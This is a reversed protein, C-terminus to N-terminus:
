VTKKAIQDVPNCCILLNHAEYGRYNKKHWNRSRKAIIFMKVIYIYELYLIKRKELHM